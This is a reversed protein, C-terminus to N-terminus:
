FKTTLNEQYEAEGIYDLAYSESAIQLARAHDFAATVPANKCLPYFKGLQNFLGTFKVVLNLEGNEDEGNFFWEGFKRFYDKYERLNEDELEIKYQALLERLAEDDVFEREFEAYNISM